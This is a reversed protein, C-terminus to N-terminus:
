AVWSNCKLRQSATMDVAFSELIKDWSLEVDDGEGSFSVVRREEAFRSSRVRLASRGVRM